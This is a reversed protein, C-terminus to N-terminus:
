KVETFTMDLHVVENIVRITELKEGNEDTTEGRTIIIYPDDSVNNYEGLYIAKFTKNDANVVDFLGYTNEICM